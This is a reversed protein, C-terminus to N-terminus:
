EALRAQHILRYLGILDRQSKNFLVDLHLAAQYRAQNPVLLDHTRIGDDRGSKILNHFSISNKVSSNTYDSNRDNKDM